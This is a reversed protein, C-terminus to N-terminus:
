GVQTIPWGERDAVRRLERDPNVAVPHGVAHLLPLDSASDAYAWAAALDVDGLSTRLRELKGVGYCLPGDLRGTFRGSVVEGRSSIGRHAGVATTFADVLEQPSASLVVCFDGAGRHRDVLERAAAAMTAVLDAAVGRAVDVLPAREVGAVAALARAQLRAVQRDTSGWRRYAAHRAGAAVLARRHVLGRAALARGLAVASSGSVLTRDLDFLALRNNGTGTGTAADQVPLRGVTAEALSPSREGAMGGTLGGCAVHGKHGCPTATFMRM